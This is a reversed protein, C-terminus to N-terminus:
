VILLVPGFLLLPVNHWCTLLGGLEWVGKWVWQAMRTLSLVNFVLEGAELPDEGADDAAGGEGVACDGDPVAFEEDLGELLMGAEGDAFVPEEAM